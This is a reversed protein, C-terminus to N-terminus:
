VRICNDFELIIVPSSMAFIRRCSHCFYRSGDHELHGAGEFSAGAGM